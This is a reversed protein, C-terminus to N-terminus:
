GKGCDALMTPNINTSYLTFPMCTSTNELFIFPAPM